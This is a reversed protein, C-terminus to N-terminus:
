LCRRADPRLSPRFPLLAEGHFPGTRLTVRRRIGRRGRVHGDRLAYPQQVPHRALPSRRLGHGRPGHSSRRAPPSEPGPPEEGGGGPRREGEGEGGDEEDGREDGFVGVRGEHVGEVLAGAGIDGVEHPRRHEHQDGARQPDHAAHGRRVGNDEQEDEGRQLPPDPSQAGGPDEGEPM